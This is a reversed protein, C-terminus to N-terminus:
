LESYYGTNITGLSMSKYHPNSNASVLVNFIHTHIYLHAKQARFDTTNYRHCFTLCEWPRHFPTLIFTFTQISQYSLSTELTGNMLPFFSSASVTSQIGRRDARVRRWCPWPSNNSLTKLVFTTASKGPNNIWINPKSLKNNNCVLTRLKAVSVRKSFHSTMTTCVDNSAPIHLGGNVSVANRPAHSHDCLLKSYSFTQSGPFMRPSSIGFSEYM